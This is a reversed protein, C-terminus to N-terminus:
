QREAQAEQREDDDILLGTPYTYNPGPAGCFQCDARSTRM